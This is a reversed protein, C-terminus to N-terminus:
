YLYTVKYKGWTLNPASVKIDFSVWNVINTIYASLSEAIYDDPDHDATAIAYLTVSPYSTTTISADTVTVVASDTEQTIAWFDVEAIWKTTTAVTINATGDFSVGNITRATTLKPASVVTLAPTTTPNTITLDGSTSSVSTVTWSGGGWGGIQLTQKNNWNAM